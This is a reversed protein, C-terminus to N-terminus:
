KKNPQYRDKIMQCTEESFEFRNIETILDVFSAMGPNKEKYLELAKMKSEIDLDLAEFLPPLNEPTPLKAGEALEKGWTYSKGANEGLKGPKIDKEERKMNIYDFFDGNFKVDVGIKNGNILDRM